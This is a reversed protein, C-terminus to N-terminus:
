LSMKKGRWRLNMSEDLVYQKGDWTEVRDIFWQNDTVTFYFRHKKMGVLILKSSFLIWKTDARLITYSNIGEGDLM